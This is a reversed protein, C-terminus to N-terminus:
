MLARRKRETMEEISSSSCCCTNRNMGDLNNGYQGETMSEQARSVKEM